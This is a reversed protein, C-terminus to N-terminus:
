RQLTQQFVIRQMWKRLGDYRKIIFELANFYFAFLLIQFHKDLLQYLLVSFLSFTILYSVYKLMFRVFKSTVVTTAQPDSTMSLIRWSMLYYFVFLLLSGGWTIAARGRLLSLYANAVLLPGPQRGLVTDHQDNIFIDGIIVIKNKAGEGIEEAPTSALLEGLNLYALTGEELFRIRMELDVIYSNLWWAKGMRVFGFTSLHGKQNKIYQYLAAPLYAVSDNLVPYKFFSGSSTLYNAPAKEIGAPLKIGGIEPDGGLVFNQSRALERVLLSDSKSPVEFLLDVVVMKPKHKADNFISLLHALKERDTITIQGSGFQDEFPTITKDYSCNIYLFEERLSPLTKDPWLVYRIIQNTKAILQEDPLELPQNMWLYTVSVLLLAHLSCLGLANFSNEFPL